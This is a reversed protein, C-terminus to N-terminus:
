ISLKYRATFVSGKVDLQEKLPGFFHLDGSVLEHRHPDPPAYNGLRLTM